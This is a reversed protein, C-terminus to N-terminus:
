PLAIPIVRGPPDAAHVVFRSVAQKGTESTATVEYRGPVLTRPWTMGGVGEIWNVYREQMVDDRTWVFTVHIPAPESVAALALRVPVGAPVDIRLETEANATVTVAAYVDPLDPGSVRLRRSGPAVDVIRALGHEAETSAFLSANWGTDDELAISVGDLRAGDPGAVPVAISGPAPMQVVGVDRDERPALTFPESWSSRRRWDVSGQLRYSGSPLPKIRFRGTGPDVDVEGEGHASCWRLRGKATPRGDTDLLTGAFSASPSSADPVRLILEEGPLVGRLVAARSARVADRAAYVTVVYPVGPTAPCRFRGEADTTAGSLRGRGRPAQAMVDWGALARDREDLV